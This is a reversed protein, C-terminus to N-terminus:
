ITAFLFFPWKKGAYWNIPEPKEEGVTWSGPSDKYGAYIKGDHEFPESGPPLLDWGLSRNGICAKVLLVRKKSTGALYYPGVVQGFGLEPGFKHRDGPVSLMLNKLVSMKGQKYMTQVYKVNPSKVWNGDEDKALEPYKGAEVLNVLSGPKDPFKPHKVTGFGLMNSQGLLIFVQIPEEEDGM